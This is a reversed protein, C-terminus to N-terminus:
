GRKTNFLKLKHVRRQRNIKWFHGIKKPGHAVGPRLAKNCKYRKKYNMIM